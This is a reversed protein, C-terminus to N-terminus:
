PDTPESLRQWQRVVFGGRLAAMALLIAGLGTREETILLFGLVCLFGTTLLGIGLSARNSVAQIRAEAPEVLRPHGGGM